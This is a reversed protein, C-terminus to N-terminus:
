SWKRFILVKMNLYLFLSIVIGFFVLDRTDLLGRVFSEFHYSLSLYNLLGALWRPLDVIFNVINMMTIALLLVAHFIFATIQNRTLSSVFLGIAIGSAGLLFTGLYEGIIQGSEFDGLGSVTIPVPITLGLMITLLALAGLFKGLVAESERYPLTMMLEITGSRNEEAWSRMTLAPILVVFVIPMIAFYERLSATDSLLFQNVYFFWVSTIALFFVIVIYAVPSNFYGLLEKRSIALIRNM